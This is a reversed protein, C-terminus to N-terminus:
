MVSIALMVGIVVVMVVIVPLAHDKVPMVSMVPLVIIVPLAHDKVPIVFMVRQMVHKVLLAITVLIM